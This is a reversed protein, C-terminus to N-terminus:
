VAALRSNSPRRHFDTHSPPKTRRAMAPFWRLLSAREIFGTPKRNNVILVSRISVQCLFEDYCLANSRMFDAVKRDPATVSNASTLIDKESVIGILCGQEDVIPALGIHFRLFFEAVELVTSDRKLSRVVATMADRVQANRLPDSSEINRITKRRSPPDVLTTPHQPQSAPLADILQGPKPNKGDM